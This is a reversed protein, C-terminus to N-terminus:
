MKLQKKCSISNMSRVRKKRKPKQPTKPQTLDLVGTEPDVVIDDDDIMFRNLLKQQERIKTKLERIRTQYRSKQVVYNNQLATLKQNTTRVEKQLALKSQCMKKKDDLLKKVTKRTIKLEEDKTLVESHIM